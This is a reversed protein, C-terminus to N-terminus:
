RSRPVSHNRDPLETVTRPLVLIQDPSFTRRKLGKMAYETTYGATGTIRQVDIHRLSGTLYKNIEEQFHVNLPQHIRGLRNAVVIGHVHLGDNVVVNRLDQKSRKPVPLDRVFIGKPLLPAWTPSRPKRVTRTALRGYWRLIEKEMQQGKTNLSGPLQHFMFTFLYGDWGNDLYEQVWEGYAQILALRVDRRCDINTLNVHQNCKRTAGMRM